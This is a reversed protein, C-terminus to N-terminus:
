TDEATGQSILECQNRLIEELDFFADPVHLLESNSGLGNKYGHVFVRIGGRSQIERILPVFDVDSTYLHCEDFALHYADHLMRVTLAIDVGKAKEIVSTTSLTNARRSALQSSEHEVAPELAFSRLSVRFEHMTPDDGSAATFYVARQIGPNMKRTWFIKAKPRVLVLQDAPQEGVHRLNELSAQEGHINRWARESRVFHSEGDVYLFTRDGM